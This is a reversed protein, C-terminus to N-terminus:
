ENSARPPPRRRERRPTGSNVPLDGLGRSEANAPLTSRRGLGEDTRSRLPCELLVNKRGRRPKVPFSSRPRRTLGPVLVRRTHPYAPGSLTFLCSVLPRALSSSAALTYPYVPVGRAFMQAGPSAQGFREPAISPTRVTSASWLASRCSIRTSTSGPLCQGGRRGVCQSGENRSNLPM